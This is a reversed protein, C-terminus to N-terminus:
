SISEDKRREIVNNTTKQEESKVAIGILARTISTLSSSSLMQYSRRSKKCFKKVTLCANHSNVDVPCLVFDSRKIQDELITEGGRMYGDHYDFAGGREEILDRYISSLRTIGGVILIRKAYLDFAPCSEDCQFHINSLQQPTDYVENKLLRNSEELNALNSFMEEKEKKLSEILNTYRKLMDEGKQLQDKLALNKAKIEDIRKTSHVEGLKQTLESNEIGTTNYKREMEILDEKMTVLEKKQQRRIIKEHELRKTLAGNRERISVAERLYERTEGGNLHSLMHVDGFLKCPTKGSLDKRSLAVWYVGCIDGVKLKKEWLTLLEEESYDSLDLIEKRYKQNLLNNLRRSLNNEEQCNSVMISHIEPLTLKKYPIHEKALIKKQEFITLCTGIISCHYFNEIEWLHRRNPSCGYPDRKHLDNEKSSPMIHTKNPGYGWDEDEIMDAGINREGITSVKLNEILSSDEQNKLRINM